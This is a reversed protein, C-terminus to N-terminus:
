RASYEDQYDKLRDVDQVYEGDNLKITVTTLSWQKGIYLEGCMVKLEKKTMESPVVSTFIM